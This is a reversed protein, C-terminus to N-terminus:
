KLINLNPVLKKNSCVIHDLWSTSRNSNRDVIQIEALNGNTMFDVDAWLLGTDDTLRKLDKFFRGKTPDANFVGAIILESYSDLNLITRMDALTIVLVIYIYM